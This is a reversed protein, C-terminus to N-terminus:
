LDLQYTQINKRIETVIKTEEDKNMQCTKWDIRDNLNLIKRSALVQRGFQLPFNKAIKHFLQEGSPLQVYFYTEGPSTVEKLSSNITSFQFNEIKAIEQFTSKVYPELNKDVPIVQLQCHSSKYNREFFVPVKGIYSYYRTLSDKTKNIEKEIKEPLAVLSQHHSVPLILLHDDVLGGKALAVYVQDIISIILHKDIHPSSLCFWCKAQDFELKVKKTGKSNESSRKNENSKLGYFYQRPEMDSDSNFCDSNLTWTPYPFPKEDTTKTVLDVFRMRDIPILNLAYIWKKKETNTIHALAVFRTAIEINEGNISKNRYPPPEYFSEELACVHYRPKIQAALWAILKSGRFHFKQNTSNLRNVDIPWQSSLLIDVGRFNPQNKLCTNRVSTVDNETLLIEKPLTSGPEDIGSVYAVKLGSDTIYLGRKGLYILDPCIESSELNLYHGLDSTRNPGIIFTKIPIKAKASKYEELQSNNEGFFNGICFLLDFPGSKKKIKEVKSFLLRLNGQVDGCVLIKRKESM